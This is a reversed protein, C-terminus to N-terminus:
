RAAGHASGNPEIRGQAPLIRQRTMSCRYRIGRRVGEGVTDRNGFRVTGGAIVLGLRWARLCRLCERCLRASLGPSSALIQKLPRCRSAALCPAEVAFGDAVLRYQDFQRDHGSDFRCGTDGPSATRVPLGNRRGRDDRCHRGSSGASRGVAEHHHQSDAGRRAASISGPAVAAGPETRTSGLGPRDALCDGRGGYLRSYGPNAGPQVSRWAGGCRCRGCSQRTVHATFIHGLTFFGTLDVMGAIVSLLAPLRAELRSLEATEDAPAAWNGLAASNRALTSM